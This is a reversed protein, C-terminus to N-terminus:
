RLATADLRVTRVGRSEALAVMDATGGPGDGGRGDWLVILTIDIDARSLASHLLWRNNREWITYGERPALWDPLETSEALVKVDLTECLKRYREMWDPGADQVSEAAFQDRPLALLLSTPIGHAACAEHFLIDGGSAGGALGEIPRDGALEKEAAVAAGILEAAKPESAAPFRPEPRGPADIRHGSFVVIRRRPPAAPEEEAAGLADLAAQVAEGFLGLKRYMRIQRAASEAPFDGGQEQAMRARAEAYKAAAFNPRDPATLLRLEARSLDAWVDYPDGRREARFADAALSRRLAAELESRKRDLGRLERDGEDEDEFRGDWTGRAQEALRLTVVALALANVGPYWHNQDAMFAQDYGRRAEELFPSRLAAAARQEVPLAEWDAVWRDKANRGKLAMAEAVRDLPLDPKELVRELAATSAVPEGLRQLITGLLLNAEPDDPREARVQEWTARADPWAGLAFQAQGVLRAGPLAWEFDAAEEGLVALLPLDGEARASRVAASFGEPVPRFEDPDAAKLAPLLLFVPSDANDAEHSQRIADALKERAGGPDDAAYELYRDTQLDFPVDDGRARILITTRPRLGHRIGLEYYVNANHISIDAIVLDALLLREFMDTRINGARAIPLTTRGEIGLDSLVPDILEKEVRDFDIGSRLGFPRVIFALMRGSM